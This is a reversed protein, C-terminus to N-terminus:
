GRGAAPRGRRRTEKEVPETKTEETKKEVKQEVAKVQEEVKHLRRHIMMGM